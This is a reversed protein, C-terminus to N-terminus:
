PEPQLTSWILVLIHSKQELNILSTFKGVSARVFAVTVEAELNIETEIKEQM